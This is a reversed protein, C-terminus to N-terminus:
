SSFDIDFLIDSAGAQRLQDILDAHLTRPWPWVGVERISPSDIAVLVIDGSAPRPFTRFRLDTLADQLAGRLGTLLALVLLCAVLIHPQYRKM